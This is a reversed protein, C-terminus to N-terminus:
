PLGVVVRHSRMIKWTSKFERAMQHDDLGARCLEIFKLNKEETWKINKKLGLHNIIVRVQNFSRGTMQCLERITKTEYNRKVINIQSKSAPPDPSVALGLAGAQEQVSYETRGLVQGIERRTKTPSLRRVIENERESWYKYSPLKRSIGIVSAHKQTAYLSRGLAAATAAAGDAHYHARFYQDDKESWRVKKLTRRKQEM